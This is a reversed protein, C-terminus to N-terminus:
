VPRDPAPAVVVIALEPVAGALIPTAGDLDGTEGPSHLEGGPEAMSARASLIPRDPAPAVAPAAGVAGIVPQEHGRPHGRDAACRGQDADLGAELAAKQRQLLITM